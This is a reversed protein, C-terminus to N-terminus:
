NKTEAKRGEGSTLGLAEDDLMRTDRMLDPYTPSVPLIDCTIKRRVILPFAVDPIAVDAFVFLEAPLDDNNRFLIRNHFEFSGFSFAALWFLRLLQGIGLTECKVACDAACHVGSAAWVVRIDGLV